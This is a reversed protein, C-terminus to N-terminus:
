VVWQKHCCLGKKPKSYLCTCYMCIYLFLNDDKKGDFCDKLFDHKQKANHTKLLRSRDFRM